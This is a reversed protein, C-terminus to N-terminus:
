DPRTEARQYMVIRWSEGAEDHRLIYTAGDSGVLKFYSHEPSLWRDIIEEVEITREGLSFRRPTEEAKHGAYCEVRIMLNEESM